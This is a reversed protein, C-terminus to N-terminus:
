LQGWGYDGYINWKPQNMLKCTKGLYTLKYNNSSLLLYIQTKEVPKVYYPDHDDTINQLIFEEPIDISYDRSDMFHMKVLGQAYDTVVVFINDDLQASISTDGGYRFNTIQNSSM